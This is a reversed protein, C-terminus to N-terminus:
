VKSADCNVWRAVVHLDPRILYVAKGQEGLYRQALAGSPDHQETTLSLHGVSSGDVEHVDPTDTNISMLIFLNFYLLQDTKDAVALTIENAIAIVIALRM